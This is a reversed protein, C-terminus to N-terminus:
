DRRLPRIEGDAYLAYKRIEGFPWLRTRFADPQVVMPSVAAEHAPRIYIFPAGSLPDSKVEPMVALEDLTLPLQAHKQQYLLLASRLEGLRSVMGAMRATTQAQVYLFLAVCALLLASSGILSVTWRKRIPWGSM